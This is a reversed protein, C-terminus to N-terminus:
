RRADPLGFGKIKKILTARSIGLERAAHTRNSGHARLTREIHAREVDELTRPVHHEVGAGSASRVETPLLDVELRVQGRGMIMARELVNRMERINGPWAYRLLRDLAAESLSQPADPLSRGLDALLHAILEVVDERARARVPPLHVPMVSLRYYLDERFRGATVEAVLDKGSAAVLRVNPAAEQTGGLRRFGKGELVRLLKPQLQPGLDGVEDLFLSGGEAVEFLGAKADRGDGFAGREWGFLEGELTLETLAACNVDVFPRKARPSAAHVYSAVVGKGTGSEGLILATTRDSASLLAIQDALERMAPSTGLLFGQARARKDGLARAFQRLQVKELAREVTVGLHGLDVPKTLFNEAGAQMAQVALPVDGYATIMIIVADDGRIRELVDFGTMDPLRLDLLVVDPRLQRSADLGERGTHARHVRHGGTKEFFAGFATTISEEDDIILITAM